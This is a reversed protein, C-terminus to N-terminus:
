DRFNQIKQFESEDMVNSILFELWDDSYTYDKHAKHYICYKRDTNEPKNSNTSPRVGYLKWANTHLHMSFKKKLRESIIRSVIKPKYPYLDDSVTKKILVNSIREGENSNPSVFRFHSNAKSANVFTYAVKFEYELDERQEPTLKRELENDFARISDPIEYNSLISLHDIDFKAFQIAFKLDSALSLKDGFLKRIANDFNLCCAQFKSLWNADNRGFLSHEVKNRIDIITEINKIAGLNLPVDGRKLMERLSIYRGNAKQIEVKKRAYHEHLLYTWAVIILMAFVEARFKTTPNNFIQVALLTAERARILREDDYPNLGTIPDISSKKKKFYELEDDTATNQSNNKKIEAIRAFNITTSRGQNVLAQIDQNRYGKSILAKIIRKEEDSLPLYKKKM